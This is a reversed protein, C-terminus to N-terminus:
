NGEDWLFQNPPAMPQNGYTFYQAQPYGPFGGNFPAKVHPKPAYNPMRFPMAANMPLGTGINKPLPTAPNPTKATPPPTSDEADNKSARLKISPLPGDAKPFPVIIGDEFLTPKYHQIPVSMVASNRYQEINAKLGQVRGWSVECVKHSRFAGLKFGHFKLRFLEAYYAHVFNIFAYGVNCKNRFDIPLYFFDYLGSFQENLVQLMMQQTYKNPINRLMVTTHGHSWDVMDDPDPMDNFDSPTRNVIYESSSTSASLQTVESMGLTTNAGGGPLNKPLLSESEPLILQSHEYVTAEIHMKATRPGDVVADCSETRPRGDSDDDDYHLFTNKILVRPDLSPQNLHTVTLGSNARYM